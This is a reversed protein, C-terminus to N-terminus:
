LIALVLNEHLLLDDLDHTAKQLWLGGTEEFDRYHGSFYNSGYTVHNYAEVQLVRGLTNSSVLERAKQVFLSMRLPFSIVAEQQYSLSAEYLRQVQETTISVPKELFIPLQYSMAEIAIDTHTNCNTGILLGDIQVTGLMEKLSSFFQLNKFDPGYNEQLRTETLSADREHIESERPDVIGVVSAEHHLKCLYRLVHHMREGYGVVGLQIKNKM